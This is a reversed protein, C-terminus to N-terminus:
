SGRSAPSTVKRGNRDIIEIDAGIAELVWSMSRVNPVQTGARWVSLANKPIGARKAIWQDDLGSADVFEMLKRAVPDTTRIPKKQGGRKLVHGSM